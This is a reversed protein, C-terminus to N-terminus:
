QALNSQQQIECALHGEDLTTVSFKLEWYEVPMSYPVLHANLPALM